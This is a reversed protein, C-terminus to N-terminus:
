AGGQKIKGSLEDLLEGVLFEAMKLRYEKSGRVDDIPSISNMITDLVKIRDDPTVGKLGGILVPTEAVAGVAVKLGKSRSYSAAANVVALDHGKLRQRKRFASVRVEGSAPVMIHTVIEDQGCCTCKVGSFFDKLPISREGAPSVARVLGDMVLLPPGLDCAPSANCINGAVTARNRLQNTALMGAAQAIAEMGTPVEAELLSNITVCAGIVLEGSDSVSIEDFGPIAKIDILHRACTTGDQLGIILDTGGALIAVDPGHEKLL